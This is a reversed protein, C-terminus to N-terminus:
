VGLWWRRLPLGRSTGIHRNMLSDTYTALHGDDPQAFLLEPLIAIWDTRAVLDLTGIMTGLTMTRAAAIENAQLYTLIARHRINLPKPLVIKVPGHGLPSTADISGRKGVVM